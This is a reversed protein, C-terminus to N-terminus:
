TATENISSGNKNGGLNKRWGAIRDVRLCRVTLRPIHTKKSDPM